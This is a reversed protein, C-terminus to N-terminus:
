GIVYPQALSDLADNGCVDQARIAQWLKKTYAINSVQPTEAPAETVDGPPPADAPQPDPEPLELDTALGVPGGPATAPQDGPATQENVAAPPALDAPAPPALEAPAPPALDAPAPPALEAPAPPALDAPAPPALDASAPALDAPPALEAPAAPLPEGLPAPLDNVALEVPPALDAPAPPALDAPAPPALDAPPAPDAPAAPLPEGLPAPLDNAALEVPPAPDAPPPALPAPEGNVAAADLPADMAASAPLVERPTANSLGRGCVPWAGRGQTALVREGVAIQQERSALQASPAFEGGGHAAWTSQTFQLGGLYGNGTNISWNGGSECRAVQDWEGDTAATAQAAMAIGGGGLVAGTFAIKAVSVNSTTPKRHRGSM